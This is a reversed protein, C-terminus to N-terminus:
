AAVGIENPITRCDYPITGTQNMMTNEVVGIYDIDSYVIHRNKRSMGLSHNCMETVIHRQDIYPDSVIMLSIHSSNMMSELNSSEIMLLRDDILLRFM